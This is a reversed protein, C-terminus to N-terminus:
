QEVTFLVYRRESAARSFVERVNQLWEWTYGLDEESLDMGYDIADIAFYRSRFQTEHHCRSRGCTRSSPGSEEPEHYDGDTYLLEGGLVAHNLPYTRGDWSLKGDALARHM